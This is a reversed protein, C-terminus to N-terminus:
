AHVQFSTENLRTMLWDIGLRDCLQKLHDLLKRAEETQGLTYALIYSQATHLLFGVDDGSHFMLRAFESLVERYLHYQDPKPAHGFAEVGELLGAANTVMFVATNDVKMFLHGGIRAALLPLWYCTCWSFDQFILMTGNRIFPALAKMASYTSEWSKFGDIFVAGLQTGAPVYSALDFADATKYPILAKHVM